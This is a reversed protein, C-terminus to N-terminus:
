KNVYRDRNKTVSTISLFILEVEDDLVVTTFGRPHSACMRLIRVMLPSGINTADGFYEFLSLIFWWAFYSINHKVLNHPTAEVPLMQTESGKSKTKM